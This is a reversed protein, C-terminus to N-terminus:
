PKQRDVIILNVDLDTIEGERIWRVRPGPYVVGDAADLEKDDTGVLQLSIAYRDEPIAFETTGSGFQACDFQCHGAGACPNKGSTESILLFQVRKLREKACDLLNGEDDVRRGDGFRLDWSAEVAGGDVPVCGALALAVIALVLALIALWHVKSM